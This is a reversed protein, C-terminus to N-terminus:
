SEGLEAIHHTSPGYPVSANMVGQAVTQTWSLSAWVCILGSRTSSSLHPYLSVQDPSLPCQGQLRAPADGLEKQGTREQSQFVTQYDQASHTHSMQEDQAHLESPVAATEQAAGGEV